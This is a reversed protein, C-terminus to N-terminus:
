IREPTVKSSINSWRTATMQRSYLRKCITEIIDNKWLFVASVKIGTYTEAIVHLKPRAVALDSKKLAEIIMIDYFWRKNPRETKRDSSTKNVNKQRAKAIACRKCQMMKGIRIRWGFRLLMAM